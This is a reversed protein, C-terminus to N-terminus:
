FGRLHEEALMVNDLIITGKVFTTQNKLLLEPTIEGLQTAILKSIIKYITNVRSIPRYDRINSAESFKPILTIFTANIHKISGGEEFFITLLAMLDSKIIEWVNQFFRATFGDPRPAKDLSLLFVISKVEEELPICALWLNM